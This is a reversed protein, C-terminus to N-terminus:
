YGPPVLCPFIRFLRARVSFCSVSRGTSPATLTTAQPLLRPGLRLIRHTFNNTYGHSDTVPPVPRFAPRAFPYAGLRLVQLRIYSGSAGGGFPGKMGQYHELRKQYRWTLFFM